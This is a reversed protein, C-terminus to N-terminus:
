YACGVNFFAVLGKDYASDPLVDSDLQGIYALSAGLSWMEGLAYSYAADLEYHNFGDDLGLAANGDGQWLLGLLAGFVVDSKENIELEYEAFLDIYTQDETLPNRDDTMFNLSGGLVFEGLEYDAGIAIEKEDPSFSYQYQTYGFYINLREVMEPLSYFIYWDTEFISDLSPTDDNFPATTGWVGVTIEGYEAPMGFGYMELSPQVVLDDAVTTGRFVYASGIDVNLNAGAVASGAVLIMAASLMSVKKM